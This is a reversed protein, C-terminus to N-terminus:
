HTGLALLVALLRRSRLRLLNLRLPGFLELVLVTLLGLFLLILESFHGGLLPLLVLLLLLDLIHLALLSLHGLKDLVSTVSLRSSLFSFYNALIGNDFTYKRTM